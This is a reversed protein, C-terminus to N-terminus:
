MNNNIFAERIFTEFRVLHDVTGRQRRFGSQVDVILNNRELFWVLRTNVMRELTKCLCSTLAIPRYNNPDSSDKGPKPIPIVLAEKWSSPFDGSQWVDNFIDLLISISTFPLHKLFQYHVKDSGPCSDHAKELATKLKKLTFLKNYHETNNSKFSLKKKEEKAKNRQFEESYNESSSKKAFTSALADAIERPTDLEENNVNLHNIPSSCKSNIKRIMDWVKKSSTRSNLKSVYQRWSKRKSNKITLRAKARSIHFQSLNDSTPRLNFRRLAEKRANIAQKSEDTFWSKPPKKPKTSTQPVSQKAADILLSTFPKAPDECDQFKDRTITQECLVQFREWNAKSLKWKKSRECSPPQTSSIFIPFHDSGHLDDGVKWEFDPLIAPSCLSLDLSSYTGTGPHLYTKSKTDNM